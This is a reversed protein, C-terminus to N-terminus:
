FPEKSYVEHTLSPNQHNADSKSNLECVNLLCMRQQAKLSTLLAPSLGLGHGHPVTLRPSLCTIVMSIPVHRTLPPKDMSSKSLPPLLFGAQLLSM